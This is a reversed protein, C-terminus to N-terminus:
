QRRSSPKVFAANLIDLRASVENGHVAIGYSELIAPPTADILARYDSNLPQTYSSSTMALDLLRFGCEGLLALLDNRPHTRVHGDPQLAQFRNIFDRDDAEDMVADAIVFRGTDKLAENVDGLTARLDPMHHLAYRCVVGDYAAAPVDLHIGDMVEFAVNVLGKDRALETNKSIAKGAIDFGTVLCDPQRKAIAFAAYGNGTALDLYRGGPTIALYDLLLSLQADDAHVRKFEATHLIADFSERAEDITRQEDSRPM